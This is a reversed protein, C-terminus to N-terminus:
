TINMPPEDMLSLECVECYWDENEPPEVNILETLVIVTASIEESRGRIAELRKMAATQMIRCYDDELSVLDTDVILVKNDFWDRAHPSRAKLQGITGDPDLEVELAIEGSLHRLQVPISEIIADCM